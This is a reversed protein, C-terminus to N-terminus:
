LDAHNKVIPILPMRVAEENVFHCDACLGDPQHDRQDEHCLLCGARSRPPEQIPSDVHCAACTAHAEMPHAEPSPRVHCAWCGDGPSEHHEEHCSQCDVADASLAPEGVHCEICARGSHVAHRFTIDRISPEAHVSLAFRQAVSVTVDAVEADSHCSACGDDLREGTHHCGRCDETSRVLLEGHDRGMTHCDFCQVGSHDVHLFTTDADQFPASAAAPAAGVFLVVSWAALCLIRIMDRLYASGSASVCRGRADRVGGAVGPGHEHCGGM